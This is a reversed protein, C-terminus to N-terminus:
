PQGTGAFTTVIGDGSIVRVRHNATDAIYLSGSPGVTVARPENFQATIATRGDGSFGATGTGAVTTIIQEPGIRRVTSTGAETVFISGDRAVALDHGRWISAELAPGGDGTGCCNGNGAITTITKDLGIRRVTGGEADFMIVSGDTLVEVGWPAVMAAATAPGGDGGLAVEGSGAFTSIVGDLRLRRIRPVETIYLSGDSGLAVDRPFALMARVGQGGDGDYGPGNGKGAISTIIGTAPDIRRIRHNMTDAIYVVGTSTVAVGSPENLEAAAAPGDDGSLAGTGIGAVTTIKGSPDIRRIRHHGTDAIYLSGDPGFAMGSPNSLPANLAPGGDGAAPVPTVPKAVTTSTGASVTTDVSAVSSAPSPTALSSTTSSIDSGNRNVIVAAVGGIALASVAIAAITLGRRSRPEVPMPKPRLLTPAEHHANAIRARDSSPTASPESRESIEVEHAALANDLRAALGLATVRNDPDKALALSIADAMEDPVGHARLDEPVDDAIRKMLAALSTSGSPSFPARGVICAHLTAALSYVDRAPAPAEGDLAEPPLYAPTGGLTGTMTAETANTLSAVGFDVLHPQDDDDLLVNAPKVDCHVVGQGHAADLARALRSGMAAVQHWPMVADRRLREHLSGGSLFQMVLYPRGDPLAGADHVSVINPHEALRGITRCERDFRRRAEDDALSVSLVKVAVTRGFPVQQARYVTAFGGRGIAAADSIGAIGLDTTEEREAGSM